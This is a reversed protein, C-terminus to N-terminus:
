KSHSRPEILVLAVAVNFCNWQQHDAEEYIDAPWNGQSYARQLAAIAKTITGNLFRHFIQHNGAPPFIAAEM